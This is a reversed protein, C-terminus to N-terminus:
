KASEAYDAPLGTVIPGLLDPNVQADEAYGMLKLIKATAEAIEADVDEAEDIHDILDILVREVEVRRGEM